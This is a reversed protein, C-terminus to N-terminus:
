QKTVASRGSSNAATTVFTGALAGGHQLKWVFRGNTKRMRGEEVFTAVVRDGEISGKVHIPTRSGAPLTQGNESFKEGRATFQKGQQNIKLRFGVQMSDFSKYATKEVTNIVRWEGTLDQVNPDRADSTSERGDASATPPPASVNRASALTNQQVPTNQPASTNKQPPTKSQAVAASSSEKTASKTEHAGPVSRTVERQADAVASPESETVSAVVAAQQRAKLKSRLATAAVALGVLLVLGVAVAVRPRLRFAFSESAAKRSFTDEADVTSRVPSGAVSGTSSGVVVPSEVEVAPTDALNTQPIEEVEALPVVQEPTTNWNPEVEDGPEEIEATEIGFFRQLVLREAPTITSAHAVPAVHDFSFEVNRLSAAANVAQFGSLSELRADILKGENFLLTGHTGFSSIDLRGSERNATISKIVDLIGHVTKMESM